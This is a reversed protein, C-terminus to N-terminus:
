EQEVPEAPEMPQEPEAPMMGDDMDEGKITVTADRSGTVIFGDLTLEVEVTPPPGIDEVLPLGDLPPFGEPLPFDGPIEGDGDGEQEGEEPMEGDEPPLFGEPIPFDGPPLSGPPLGPFGDPGSPTLTVMILGPDVQDELMQEILEDLNQPVPREAGEDGFGGFDFGFDPIPIDGPPPGFGGIFDFASGSVNINAEGAPFDEPVELTVERQITRKDGATSWHPVLVVSVTVSEGPMIEEPAIVEAVEAKTIQPKDTITISVAKLTAKGASNTLMNSFSEVIRGVNALVDTFPSPSASRFPETYVTDTEQFQLTVTGDVTANSSEMRLADVTCAAVMPIHGEQGYAVRHHKEIATANNAPHYTTKVPIMPPPAGLEGVIAPTLDKTITGIPNGYASASKYSAILHPVIGNVVVRYVPLASTGTGFMPHGFAVFKNDYVQTVTGLGISNVIDGTAIAAGIMDGPALRLSAGAAPAAPAGGIDAFLEVFNYQSHALYSSLEQIRHPQIGTIMMPTKVPAYTAHIGAAPAAPAAEQALVEAFTQHDLTTEMADIATVWFRTPSKSFIDRYALAGMIRGPPGVPSGSMGQAIGGLAEVSEDMLECEYLPFGYGFDRVGRFRANIVVRSTGELVTVIQVPTKDTLRRAEEEYMNELVIDGLLPAASFGTILDGAVPNELQAQEEDPSCSLHCLVLLAIGTMVFYFRM